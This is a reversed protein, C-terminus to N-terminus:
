IKGHEREKENLDHLGYVAMACGLGCGIPLVLIFAVNIITLSTGILFSALMLAVGCCFWGSEWQSMRRNMEEEETFGDM